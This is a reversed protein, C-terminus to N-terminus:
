DLADHNGMRHDLDLEGFSPHRVILIPKDKNGPRPRRSMSATLDDLAVTFLRERYPWHFRFRTPKEDVRKALAVAPKVFQDRVRALGDLHNRHSFTFRLSPNASSQREGEKARGKHLGPYFTAKGAAEANLPEHIKGQVPRLL